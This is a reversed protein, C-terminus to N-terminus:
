GPSQISTATRPVPLVSARNELVTVDSGQGTRETRVLHFLLDQLPSDQKLEKELNLSPISDSWEFSM